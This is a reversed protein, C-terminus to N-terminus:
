RIVSKLVLQDPNVGHRGLWVLVDEPRPEANGFRSPQCERWIASVIEHRNAFRSEGPSLEEGDFELTEWVVPRGLTDPPMAINAEPFTVQSTLKFNFPITRQKWKVPIYLHLRRNLTDMLADWWMAPVQIQTSVKHDEALAQGSLIRTTFRVTQQDYAWAQDQESTIELFERAYAGVMGFKRPELTIQRRFATPRATM